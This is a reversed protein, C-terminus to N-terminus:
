ANELAPPAISKALGRSINKQTVVGQTAAALVARRYGHPRRLVNQCATM